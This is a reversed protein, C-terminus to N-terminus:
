FTYTQMILCQWLFQSAYSLTYFVYQTPKDTGIYQQVRENIETNCIFLSLRNFKHKLSKM